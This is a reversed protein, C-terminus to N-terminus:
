KKVREPVASPDYERRRGSLDDAWAGLCVPLLFKLLDVQIDEYHLDLAYDM